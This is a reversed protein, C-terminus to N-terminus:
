LTTKVRKSPQENLLIEDVYESVAIFMDKTIEELQIQIKDNELDHIANPKLEQIKQVMKTLGDNNLKKVKEIFELQYEVKVKEEEEENESKAESEIKVGEKKKDKQKKNVNTQSVVQIGM